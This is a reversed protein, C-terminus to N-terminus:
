VGAQSTKWRERAAMAAGPSRRRGQAEDPLPLALARILVDFTREASDMASLLPNARPQGASGEIVLDGALEARMQAQRDLNHCACTLIATEQPSFRYSAQMAQWFRRGDSGLGRPARPATM